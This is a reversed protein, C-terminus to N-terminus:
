VPSIVLLKLFSGGIQRRELFPVRFAGKLVPFFVFVFFMRRGGFSWLYSKEDSRKRLLWVGDVGM